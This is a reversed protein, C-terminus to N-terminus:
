LKGEEWKLLVLLLFVRKDFETYEVSFDNNFRNLLFEVSDKQNNPISDTNTNLYNAVSEELAILEQSSLVAETVTVLAANYKRLLKPDNINASIFESAKKTANDTHTAHKRLMENLECKTIGKNKILENYDNSKMEYCAKSEVSDKILRYLANPKEPECGMIKEFSGVIKGKLDNDPNLLNMSTYIFDINNLDLESGLEKSLEKCIKKKASDSLDSFHLTESESYVTKDIKLFANSVIAVKIPILSSKTNKLLYIKGFISKGTKDQKSIQTFKYPEQVKHTKIQYFELLDSLHIEIDCKYDYVVCFDEQDFLDFMKSAGWLMELRFRNKSTAGSLEHPIKEYEEIIGM